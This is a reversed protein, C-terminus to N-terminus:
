KADILTSHSPSQPSACDRWYMAAGLLPAKELLVSPVLRIGLGSIQNRASPLFLHSSRSIGGGLVVVEPGLPALIQKIVQGLQCGFTDFVACAGPDVAAGLAIAEVSQHKDTRAEYDREIARSSLVDEVIGDMFPLNWIEGGPPGRRVTDNLNGNQVFAFGIGTGLMIGVARAAGKAAGSGVEGLLAANADNLFRIREPTWGLRDALAARLDVGYLEELKHRMHSVGTGYAFPGPFALSAGATQDIGGILQQGLEQLLGIFADSSITDPLLAVAMQLVTLPELLCLGVSVHSGGIDYALLRDAPKAALSARRLIDIDNTACGGVPGTFARFFGRSLRTRRSTISEPDFSISIMQRPNSITILVNIAPYSLILLALEMLADPWGM